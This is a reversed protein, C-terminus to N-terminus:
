WSQMAHAFHRPVLFATVLVADLAIEHKRYRPHNWVWREAAARVRSAQRPTIAAVALEIARRQKVEVFALRTGRVAILDIEGLKSKHRRELIRYGKLMLLAAASLEAIRGRRERRRREATHRGKARVPARKTAFTAM